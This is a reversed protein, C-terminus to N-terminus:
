FSWRVSGGPRFIVRDSGFPLDLRASAIAELHGVIPWRSEAGLLLAPQGEATTTSTPPPRESRVIRALNTGLGLLFGMRLHAPTEPHFGLLFGLVNTRESVTRVTSERFPVLLTQVKEQASAFDFEGRLTARRTLWRGFTIRM